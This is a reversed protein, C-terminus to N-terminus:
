PGVWHGRKVKVVETFVWRWIYDGESTGSTLAEVHLTSASLEAGFLSHTVYPLSTAGTKQVWELHFEHTKDVQFGGPTIRVLDSEQSM